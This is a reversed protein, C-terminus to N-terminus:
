RQPVWFFRAKAGRSVAAGPNRGVQANKVTWFWIIGKVFEEVVYQQIKLNIVQELRRYYDLIYSDKKLSLHHGLPGLITIGWPNVIPLSILIFFLAPSSHTM